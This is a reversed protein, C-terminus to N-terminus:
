LREMELPHGEQKEQINREYDTDLRRAIVTMIHGTLRITYSQLHWRRKTAVPICHECGCCECCANKQKIEM